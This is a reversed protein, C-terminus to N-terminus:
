LKAWIEKKIITDERHDGSPLMLLTDFEMSNWTLWQETVKRYDEPRASVIICDYVDSARLAKYLDVIPTNPADDGMEAFFAGWNHRDNELHHMRHKIDALTGDIDFLVLQKM